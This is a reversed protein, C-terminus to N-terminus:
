AKEKWKEEESHITWDIESVENEKLFENAKSFHRCGFFGRYASLPSPHPAELILHGPNDLLKTKSRAYSGWLMFVVPANKKNIYSIVADTFTQWGFAAHSNAEGKRVTLTANLLLVGQDAWCSLDGTDAAPIGLDDQLEKYINVLSPPLEVGEPVSFCMGMAQRPEHYPDQGIIVVKVSEYPTHEFANFVLEIPPYVVASRYQAGVQRNLELFYPKRCEERFFDKWDNSPMKAKEM